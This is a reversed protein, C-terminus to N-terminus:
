LYALVSFGFFNEEAKKKRNFITLTAIEEPNNTRFLLKYLRALEEM